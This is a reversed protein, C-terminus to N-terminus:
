SLALSRAQAAAQTMMLEDSGLKYAFARASLDKSIQYSLQLGDFSRGVNHWDLAGILRESNTSFSMRGFKFSLGDILLNNWLGYGERLSINKSSGDLTGRAQATLGEGFNRSDQFRLMMSVDDSLKVSAFLQTKLLDVKLPKANNSFFKGDV